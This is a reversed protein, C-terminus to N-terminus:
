DREDKDGDQMRGMLSIAVADQTLPDMKVVWENSTVDGAADRSQMYRDLSVRVIECERVFQDVEAKHAAVAEPDMSSFLALDPFDPLPLGLVQALNCAKLAFAFAMDENSVERSV